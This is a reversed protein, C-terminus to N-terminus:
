QTFTDTSPTIRTPIIGCESQILLSVSYTETNLRFALFYPSSYSRIRVSKVCHGHKEDSISPIEFIHSLPIRCRERM